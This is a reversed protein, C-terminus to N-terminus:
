MVIPSTLDIQDLPIPRDQDASADISEPPSPEPVGLLRSLQQRQRENLNVFRVGFGLGPSEHAVVGQLEFWSGDPLLLQLSLTEGAIVRVITDVYCGGYSLDSIRSTQNTTSGQWRATLCVDFRLNTRKEEM